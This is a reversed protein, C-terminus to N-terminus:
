CKLGVKVQMLRKGLLCHFSLTKVLKGQFEEAQLELVLEGSVASNVRLSAMPCSRQTTALLYCPDPSGHFTGEGSRVPNINLSVILHIHLRETDDCEAYAQLYGMSVGRHDWVYSPTDWFRDDPAALIRSLEMMLLKLADYSGGADALDRM